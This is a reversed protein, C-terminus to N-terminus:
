KNIKSQNSILKNRREQEKALEELKIKPIATTKEKSMKM